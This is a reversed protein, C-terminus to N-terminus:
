CWNSWDNNGGYLDIILNDIFLDRNVNLDVLSIYKNIVDVRNIIENNDIKDYNLFDNKEFMLVKEDLNMKYFLLDLYYILWMNLLLKLSDKFLYTDKIGICDLQNEEIYKITDLYENKKNELFDEYDSYSDFLPLLYDKNDPILSFVQCRSIITNIVDNVNNTVLFAIINEQPEELFKLITNASSDNLNECNFIIYVKYKGLLPKVLFEEELKLIEEKKIIKNNLDIIKLDPYSGNNLLINYQELRSDDVDLFLFKNVIEFVIEKYFSVGNVDLLYAHSIKNNSIIKDVVNYFIPQKNRYKEHM